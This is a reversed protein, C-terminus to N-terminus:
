EKLPIPLEWEILLISLDLEMVLVPLKCEMILILPDSESVFIPLECELGFGSPAM